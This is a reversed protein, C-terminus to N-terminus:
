GSRNWVAGPFGRTSPRRLIKSGPNTIKWNGPVLSWFFSFNIEINPTKTISFPLGCNLVNWLPRNGFAPSWRKLFSLLTAILDNSRQQDAGKLLQFYLDFRHDGGASVMASMASQRTEYPIKDGLFPLLLKGTEDGPYTIFAELARNLLSSPTKLSLLSTLLKQGGSPKFDKILAVGDIKVSTDAHALLAEMILNAHGWKGVVGIAKQRLDARKNQLALKRVIDPLEESEFAELADLAELLIVPELASSLYEM